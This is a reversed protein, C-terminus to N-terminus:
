PRDKLYDDVRQVVDHLHLSAALLRLEDLLDRLEPDLPQPLIGMSPLPPFVSTAHHRCHKGVKAPYGCLPCPNIGASM